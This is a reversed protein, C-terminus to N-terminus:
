PALSQALSRLESMGTLESAPVTATLGQAASSMQLAAYPVAIRTGDGTSVIAAVLRGGPIAALDEVTGVTQGDAGTLSQGILDAVLVKDQAAGALTDAASAIASADTLSDPIDPLDQGLAPLALGCALCAGLTRHM